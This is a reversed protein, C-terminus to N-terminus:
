SLVNSYRRQVEAMQEELRALKEREANVKEQAEKNAEHIEALWRASLMYYIGALASLLFSILLNVVVTVSNGVSAIFLICIVAMVMCVVALVRSQGVPAKDVDYENNQISLALKKLYKRRKSFCSAFFLVILIVLAIEVVLMAGYIVTAFLGVVALVGWPSNIDEGLMIDPSFILTAVLFIVGLALLAAIGIFFIKSYLDFASIKKLVKSIDKEKEANYGQLYGIFSIIMVPLLPIFLLCSLLIEESEFNGFPLSFLIAVILLSAVCFFISMLFLKPKKLYAYIGNKQEEIATEVKKRQEEVEFKPNCNECFLLGDAVQAGCKPCYM